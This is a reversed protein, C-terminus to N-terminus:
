EFYYYSVQTLYKKTRNNTKTLYSNTFIFTELNSNIFIFTECVMRGSDSERIAGFQGYIPFIVIVDFNDSMVDGDLKESTATNRYDLNTLPGLKM